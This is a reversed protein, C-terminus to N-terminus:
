DHTLDCKLVKKMVRREPKAPEAPLIEEEEVMKCTPPLAGSYAMITIAHGEVDAKYYIGSPFSEKDWRPALQMLLLLDSRNYVAITIYSSPSIYVTESLLNQYLKAIKLALQYRSIDEDLNKIIYDPLM